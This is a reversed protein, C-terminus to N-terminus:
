TEETSRDNAVAQDIARRLAAPDRQRLARPMRTLLRADQRLIASLFRYRGRVLAAAYQRLTYRVAKLVAVPASTAPDKLLRLKDGTAIYVANKHRETGTATFNAHIHNLRAAPVLLALYGAAIARAILEREEGYMHFLPDFLGIQALPRMSLALCSGNIGDFPVAYTEKVTQLVLDRVYATHPSVYYKITMDLISAGDYTRSIPAAAFARPEDSLAKVLRPLTDPAVTTDQNLLVAVSAGMTQCHRLGVNCARAFGIGPKTTIITPPSQLGDSIGAPLRNPCNDVIIVTTPTDSRELSELCARLYNAGLYYPIM